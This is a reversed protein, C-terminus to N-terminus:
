SHTSWGRALTASHNSQMYFGILTFPLEQVHKSSIHKIHCTSKWQWAESHCCFHSFMGSKRKDLLSCDAWGGLLCTDRVFVRILLCNNLTRLLGNLQLSAFWHLPLTPYPSHCSSFVLTQSFSLPTPRPRIMKCISVQTNSALRHYLKHLLHVDILLSHLWSPTQDWYICCLM